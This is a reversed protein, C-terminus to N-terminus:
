GANHATISQAAPRIQSQQQRANAPAQATAISSGASQSRYQITDIPATILVQLRHTSLRQNAQYRACIASLSQQCLPPQNAHHNHQQRRDATILNHQAQNNRNNHAYQTDYQATVNGVINHQTTNYRGTHRHTASPAPWHAQHHANNNHAQRHAIPAYHQQQANGTCLLSQAGARAQRAQRWHGRGIRGTGPSARRGIRRCIGARRGGARGPGIGPGGTGPARGRARHRGRGIGAAPGPSAGPARHAGPASAWARGPARARAGTIPRIITDTRTRRRNNNHRQRAIIQRTAPAQGITGAQVM